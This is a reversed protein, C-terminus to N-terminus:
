DYATFFNLVLEVTFLTTVFVSWGRAWPSFDSLDFGVELPALFAVVILVGLMLMELRFELM